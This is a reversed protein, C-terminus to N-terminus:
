LQREFQLFKESQLTKHVRQKDLGIHAVKLLISRGNYDMKILGGKHQQTELKLM